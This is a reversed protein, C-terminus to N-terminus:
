SDPITSLAFLKSRGFPASTSKVQVRNLLGDMEEVSSDEIIGIGPVARCRLTPFDVMQTQSYTRQQRGEDNGFRTSKKPLLYCSSAM